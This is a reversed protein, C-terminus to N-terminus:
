LPNIEHQEPNKKKHRDGYPKAVISDIDNSNDVRKPNTSKKTRYGDHLSTSRYEPTDVNTSM